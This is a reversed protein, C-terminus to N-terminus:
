EVGGPWKLAVASLSKTDVKAYIETSQSSHHGLLQGIEILSTGHNLLSSALTHRLLHAGKRAPSLNARRLALAVISSVTSSHGLGRYPANMCLFVNSASCHPRTYRLYSVLSEGVDKPIPLRRHTNGKGQVNLIGNRWDLDELRLSVIECARLGLHALLMIIAYDRRGMSTRQDCSQILKRVANKDLIVPIHRLRWQAISPITGSFDSQIIGTLHLWRIFCRLAVVFSNAHKPGKRRIVQMIMSQLWAPQLSKLQFPKNKFRLMFFAEIAHTYKVITWKSYGRDKELFSAFQQLIQKQPALPKFSPIKIIKQAQLYTLYRELLNRHNRGTYGTKKRFLIFEDIHMNALQLSGINMMGLWRHFAQLILLHDKTTLTAYGINKETSIFKIYHNYFRSSQLHKKM